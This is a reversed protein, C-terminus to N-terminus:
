TGTDGIMDPLEHELRRIRPFLCAAVAAVCGATGLLIFLFGIGRGPGVGIWAGVTSTLGGGRRFLPEFVVDALPGAALQGLPITAQTLMRRLAFVRGQVDPAVKTQWLVQSTSQLVPLVSMMVFGNIAVLVASPQLGSFAIVMGGLFIFGLIARVKRKPVGLAMVAVSGALMGLGGITLTVGLVASSAFSRVLPFYLVNVSAVLFNVFAFLIVLAMLGVRSRLYRWGVAAESWLSGKGQSGEETALPRPFRVYLLTAIAVLFTGADILLVTSIGLTVLMVGALVPAVIRAIGQSSQVFGSARGLHHKPVLLPISATYAPEQFADALSIMAALILFNGFATQGTVILGWILLEAVCAVCNSALMVRRRDWRDVISGAVPSILIGPLSAALIILSLHTVSNDTQDLIWNALAFATLSSGLVSVFQGAAVIGFVRLGGQAATQTMPPGQEQSVAPTVDSAM